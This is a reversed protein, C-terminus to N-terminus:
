RSMQILPALSPSTTRRKHEKFYSYSKLKPRYPNVPSLPRNPYPNKPSLPTNFLQSNQYEAPNYYRRSPFLPNYKPVPNPIPFKWPWASAGEFKAGRKVEDWTPSWIFSVRKTTGDDMKLYYYRVFVPPPQLEIPEIKNDQASAILALALVIFLSILIRM